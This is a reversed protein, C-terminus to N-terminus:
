RSPRRVVLADCPLSELISKAMSGILAELVAGRGHTGLVVLDADHVQVYERVIQAPAGPEISPKLRQRDNESLPIGALFAEMDTAVVEKFGEAHREPDAVRSVYPAVSAHLLHLTQSPFFRLAVELAHASPESFDTALVIHRYPTRARHRVILVPAQM